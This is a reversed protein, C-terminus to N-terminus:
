LSAEGAPMLEEGGVGAGLETLEEHRMRPQELGDIRVLQQELHERHRLAAAADLADAAVVGVATVVCIMNALVRLMNSAAATCAAISVRKGPAVLTVTLM